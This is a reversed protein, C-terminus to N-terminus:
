IHILSLTKAMAAFSPFGDNPMKVVSDAVVGSVSVRGLRTNTGGVDAVLGFANTDM